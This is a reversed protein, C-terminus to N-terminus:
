EWGRRPNNILKLRVGAVNENPYKGNLAVAELMHQSQHWYFFEVKGLAFGGEIIWSVFRYQNTTSKGIVEQNLYACFQTDSTCYWDFDFAIKPRMELREKPKEQLVYGDRSTDSYKGLEFNFKRMALTEAQVQCTQFIAVLVIAWVGWVLVESGTLKKIFGM